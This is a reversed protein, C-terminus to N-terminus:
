LYNNISYKNIQVLDLIITNKMLQIDFHSIFQSIIMM